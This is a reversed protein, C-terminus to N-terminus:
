SREFLEKIWVTPFGANKIVYDVTGIVNDDHIDYIDNVPNNDGKTVFTRVSDKSSIKVVRHTVIGTGSNFALIDGIKIEDGNKKTVLVADGRKYSPLMSNSVIAILEHKFLGATLSVLTFLFIIIISTFAYKITKKGKISYKEKYKLLKRIEFYMLFPVIVHIVSYIYNGFNPLFPIVFTYLNLSLKLILSPEYGINGTVFTYLLESAVVPLIITSTYIFTIRYNVLYIGNILLFSNILIYGIVLLIKQFININKKLIMYRSLEMLVYITTYGLINTFMILYNSANSNTRFGLFFGMLYAVLFYLLVLIISIRIAPKRLYDLNKSYGFLFYLLITLLIFFIINIIIIGSIVKNYLFFWEIGAFILLLLDIAYIKINNIKM